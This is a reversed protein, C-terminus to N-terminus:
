CIFLDYRESNLNEVWDSNDNPIILGNRKSKDNNLSLRDRPIVRTEIESNNTVISVNTNSKEIWQNGALRKWAEFGGNLLVPFRKLNKKFESECIASKLFLLVNDREGPSSPSSFKGSSATYTSDKDHYVVLDFKDRNKFLEQEQKPSLILRNNELDITSIRYIYQSFSNLCYLSSIISVKIKIFENFSVLGEALILPELCVINNTKIHGADFEDRNRVDLILIKPPNSQKFIKLLEGAEVSNSSKLNALPDVQQLNFGTSTTPSSLSKNQISNNSSASLPPTPIPIPMSLKQSTLPNNDNLNSNALSKNDNTPADVNLGNNRLNKVREAVSPNMPVISNLSKDSSVVGIMNDNDSVIYVPSRPLGSETSSRSDVDSYSSGPKPMQIFSSPSLNRQDEQEAMINKNHEREELIKAAEEAKEM